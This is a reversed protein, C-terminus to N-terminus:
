FITNQHIRSKHTRLSNKSRFSKGCNECSFSIGEIHTEMHQKIIYKAKNGQATKGCINCVASGDDRFEVNELIMQKTVETTSSDLDVSVVSSSLDGSEEKVVVSKRQRTRQKRVPPTQQDVSSDGQYDDVDVAKIEEAEQATLGELQYKQAIKLFEDLQEQFIQVEGQYIYDLVFNLNQSSVGELCLLPHSHTNTTLINRFYPSCASLVLKHASVPKQDESILTVDFFEQENKLKGFSKSINSQFDNWKLNFKETMRGALKFRFQRAM